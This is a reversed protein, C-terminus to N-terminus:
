RPGRWRRDGPRESRTQSGAAETRIDTVTNRQPQFFSNQTTPCNSFEPTVPPHKISEHVPYASPIIGSIHHLYNIKQQGLKADDDPHSKIGM